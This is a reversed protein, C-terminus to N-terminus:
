SEEVVATDGRQLRYREQVFPITYVQFALGQDFISRRPAPAKDHQMGWQFRNLALLIKIQWAWRM